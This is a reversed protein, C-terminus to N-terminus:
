GSAQPPTTITSLLEAVDAQCWQEVCQDDVFRLNALGTLTVDRGSPPIGQFPGQHTGEVSFRVAVRDGEAVLDQLTLRSGPFATWFAAHCRRIPDPGSEAGPCGHLVADAAYLALYGQEDQANWSACARTVIAKNDAAAM